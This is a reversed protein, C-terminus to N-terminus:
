VSQCNPVPERKGNQNGPAGEGSRGHACAAAWAQMVVVVGGRCCGDGFRRQIHGKSSASGSPPTSCLQLGFEQILRHLYWAVACTLNKELKLREAEDWSEWWGRVGDVLDSGVEQKM